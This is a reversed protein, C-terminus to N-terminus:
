LVHLDEITVTGARPDLELQVTLDSRGEEATWMDVDLWVSGDTRRGGSVSWTRPGDPPMVLHVQGWSGHDRTCLYPDAGDAFAGMAELSARDHDVLAQLARTALQVELETLDDPTEIDEAAM